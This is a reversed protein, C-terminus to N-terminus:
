PNGSSLSFQFLLSVNGVLPVIRDYDVSIVANQGVGRIRLDNASVSSISDSYARREFSRRLDATSAGERAEQALASMVKRMGFYENYVPVCRFATLLLLALLAGVILTGILSLGRQRRPLRCQKPLM